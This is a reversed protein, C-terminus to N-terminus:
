VLRLIKVPDLSCDKDFTKSNSNEGGGGRETGGNVGGGGGGGMRERQRERWCDEAAGM